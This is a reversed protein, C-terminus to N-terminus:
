WGLILTIKVFALLLAALVIIGVMGNAIRGYRREALRIKRSEKYVDGFAPRVEGDISARLSYYVWKVSAGIFELVVSGFLPGSFDDM